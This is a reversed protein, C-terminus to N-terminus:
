IAVDLRSILQWDSAAYGDDSIHVVRNSDYSCEYFESTYQKLGFVSFRTGYNVPQNDGGVSTVVYICGYGPNSWVDGVRMKKSEDTWLM